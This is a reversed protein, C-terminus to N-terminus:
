TQAPNLPKNKPDVVVPKSAQAIQIANATAEAVDKDIKAKETAWDIGPNLNWRRQLEAYLSEKSLVGDAVLGVLTQYDIDDLASYGFDSYVGVTGGNTGLNAFAAMYGLAINLSDQLGQAVRQLACTGVSDDTSVETATAQVDRQMLLEAGANRMEDKLDDLSIKGSEISAGTHETFTLKGDAPIRVAINGSITLKFAEEDTAMALIPVRAFHLINDQDSQSQWHKINLYAMEILPPKSEMFDVYEGYVVAIPVFNVSTVGQSFLVWLGTEANLRHIEWGGVNLVKIQKIETVTYGDPNVVEVCEYFRFQTLTAKGNIVQYQWGIVDDPDISCWYPRIGAAREAAVTNAVNTRAPADVLIFSMGYGLATQLQDASFEALNRGNMDIDDLWPLMVVPIDKNLTLPRSFPKASLTTITRSFAPFLTSLNIRDKYDKPEEKPWKPLYREGANRMAKTGGLLDCVIQWAGQMKMVVASPKAVPNDKQLTNDAM